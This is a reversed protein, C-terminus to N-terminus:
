NYLIRQLSEHHVHANTISDGIVAGIPISGQVGYPRSNDTEENVQNHLETQLMDEVLTSKPATDKDNILQGTVTNSTPLQLVTGEIAEPLTRRRKKPSQSSSFHRSMTTPPRRRNRVKRLTDINGLLHDLTEKAFIAEYQYFSALIWAMRQYGAANRQTRIDPVVLESLISTRGSVFLKRRIWSPTLDAYQLRKKSSANSTNAIKNHMTTFFAEYLRLLDQNPLVEFRRAVSKDIILPKETKEKWSADTCTGKNYCHGPFWSPLEFRTIDGNQRLQAHLRGTTGISNNRSNTKSIIAFASLAAVLDHARSSAEKMKFSITPSFLVRVESQTVHHPESSGNGEPGVETELILHFRGKQMFKDQIHELNRVLNCVDDSVGPLWHIGNQTTTEQRIAPCDLLKEINKGGGSQGPQSDSGFSPRDVNDM